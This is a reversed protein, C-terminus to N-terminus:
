KINRDWAKRWPVVIDTQNERTVCYGTVPFAINSGSWGLAMCHAEIKWSSYCVVAAFGLFVALGVMILGMLVDVANWYRM